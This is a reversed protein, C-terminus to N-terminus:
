IFSINRCCVHVSTTHKSDCEQAPLGGCYSFAIAQISEHTPSGDKELNKLSVWLLQTSITSSHPTIANDAGGFADERGAEEM